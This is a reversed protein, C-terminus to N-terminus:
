MPGIAQSCLKLSKSPRHQLSQPLHRFLSITTSAGRAGQWSQPLFDTPQRVSHVHEPLSHSRLQGLRLRRRRMSCGRGSRALALQRAPGRLNESIGANLPSELIVRGHADIITSVVLRFAPM